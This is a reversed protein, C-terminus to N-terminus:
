EKEKVEHLTKYVHIQNDYNKEDALKPETKVQNGEKACSPNTQTIEYSSRGRSPHFSKRASVYM